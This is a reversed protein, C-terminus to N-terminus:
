LRDQSQTQLEMEEQVVMQLDLVMVELASLAVAEAALIIEAATEATM